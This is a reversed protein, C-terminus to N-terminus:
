TSNSEAYSSCDKWPKIEVRRPTITPQTAVRVAKSHRIEAQVVMREKSQADREPRAKKRRLLHPCRISNNSRGLTESGQLFRLIKSLRGPVRSLVHLASPAARNAHAQAPARPPCERGIPYERRRGVCFM